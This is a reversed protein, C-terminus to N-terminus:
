FSREKLWDVLKLPLWGYYSNTVQIVLLYDGEGEIFPILNDYIEKPTTARNTSVLWASDLYHAWEGLDKIKEYLATYDKKSHNLKYLIAFVM